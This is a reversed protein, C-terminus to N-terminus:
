NPGETSGRLIEEVPTATTTFSPLLEPSVFVESIVTETCNGNSAEYVVEYTAPNQTQNGLEYTVFNSTSVELEDTTGQLRYFWRHSTAGITSNLFSVTVPGCGGPTSPIVNPIILPYVQIVDTTIDTCGLLNNTAILSVTYSLTTTTSNNVFEHTVIPDSTITSPSGDGWNWEYTTGPQIDNNSFDVSLPGCGLAASM